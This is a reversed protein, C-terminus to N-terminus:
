DDTIIVGDHTFKTKLEEYLLMHVNSSTIETPNFFIYITGELCPSLASYERNAFVYYRAFAVCPETPPNNPDPPNFFPSGINKQVTFSSKITVYANAVQIGVSPITVNNILFGM